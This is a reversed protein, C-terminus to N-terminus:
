RARGGTRRERLALSRRHQDNIRRLRLHEEYTAVHHCHDGGFYAREAYISM